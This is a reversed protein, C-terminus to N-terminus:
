YRIAMRLGHRDHEVVAPLSGATGAAIRQASWCAVLADLVDDPAALRRPVAALLAQVRAHGVHEGLLAVRQAHGAPTKKGAALGQGGNLVAFSVEPHVEHVRVAWAADSRLAADWHRIKDLLGYSQVGFGRQKDHDLARHLRSAEPQSQAHLMGRLPAAFISCARRGGVFRRAQVDAARPTHESLGIPIDVGIVEAARLAHAMDQVTAYYAFALADETDWVALWGSRAGDIGVWRMTYRTM